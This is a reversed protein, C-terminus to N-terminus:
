WSLSLPSFSGLSHNNNRAVNRLRVATALLEPVGLTNLLSAAVSWNPRHQTRFKIYRSMDRATPARWTKWGYAPPLTIAGLREAMRRTAPAMTLTILVLGSEAVASYLRHGLGSGRCEPLVIVDVIGAAPYKVGASCIHACQVAIQGVVRSDDLAIWVPVLDDSFSMFPNKVVAM